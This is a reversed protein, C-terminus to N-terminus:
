YLRWTAGDLGIILSTAKPDKYIRGLLAETTTSYPFKQQRCVLTPSLGHKSDPASARNPQGTRQTVFCSGYFLLQGRSCYTSPLIPGIKEDLSVLPVMTTIAVPPLNIPPDDLGKTFLARHDKHLHQDDSGPLSTACVTSGLIVKKGILEKMLAVVFPNAFLEPNNFAGQLAFTIQYRRHGIQLADEHDGDHFHHEYDHLYQKKCAEIVSQEFANLLLLTGHRRYLAVALALTEPYFERNELEQAELTITPMSSPQEAQEFVAKHAKARELGEAVTSNATDLKQAAVLQQSARDFELQELLLMGRECMIDPNDPELALARDYALLAAPLNGNDIYLDAALLGLDTNEPYLELSQELLVLARTIEDIDQYHECQEFVEEPDDVISLDCADMVQELLQELELDSPIDSVTEVSCLRSLSPNILKQVNPDQSKAVQHLLPGQMEWLKKYRKAKDKGLLKQAYPMQTFGVRTESGTLWETLNVMRDINEEIGQM